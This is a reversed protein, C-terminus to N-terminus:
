VTVRKPMTGFAVLDTYCDKCLDHKNSADIKKKKCNKCKHAHPIVLPALQGVSSPENETSHLAEEKQMIEALTNVLKRYEKNMCAIGWVPLKEADVDKLKEFTVLYKEFATM